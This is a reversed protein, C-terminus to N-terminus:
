TLQFIPLLHILHGWRAAPPSTRATLDQVEVGHPSQVPVSWIAPSSQLHPPPPPHKTPPLIQPHIAPATSTTWTMM